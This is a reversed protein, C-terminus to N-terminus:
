KTSTDRLRGEQLVDPRRRITRGMGLRGSRSRGDGTAKSQPSSQRRDPTAQPVKRADFDLSYWNDQGNRAKNMPYFCIARHEPIVPYLRENIYFRMRDRFADMKKQFEASDPSLGEKERLTKEYDRDQSMYESIETVSFFSYVPQLIGAPLASLLANEAENLHHLEPDIMMVGLDAKHGLSSYCNAQCNEGLRFDDLAKQFAARANLQGSGPLEAWMRRDIRYFVHLVFWGEEAHIPQM